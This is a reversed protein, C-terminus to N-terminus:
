DVMPKIDIVPTNNLADLGKVHLVNGEVKLLDVVTVGIGNPRNPSRSAFVGAQKDDYRRKQVLSFGKSLNFYFLIQLKEFDEIRFLGEEFEKKLIIRSEQDKMERAAAPEFISNHVYGIAQLRIIDDNEPM